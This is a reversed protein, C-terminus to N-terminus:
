PGMAAQKLRQKASIRCLFILVGLTGTAITAIIYLYRNVQVAPHIVANEPTALTTYAFGFFLLVSFVLVLINAAGVAFSAIRGRM